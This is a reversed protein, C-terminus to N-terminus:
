FIYLNIFNMAYKQDHNDNFPEDAKSQIGLAHTQLTPPRYIILANHPHVICPYCETEMDTVLFLPTFTVFISLM